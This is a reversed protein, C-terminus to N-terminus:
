KHAEETLSIHFYDSPPFQLLSLLMCRSTHELSWETPRLTILPIYEKEPVFFSEKSTHHSSLVRNKKMQSVM